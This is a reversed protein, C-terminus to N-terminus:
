FVIGGPTLALNGPLRVKRTALSEGTVTKVTTTPPTALLYIALATVAVGVGIGIGGLIHM